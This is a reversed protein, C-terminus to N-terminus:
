PQSEWRLLVQQVVWGPDFRLQPSCSGMVALDLAALGAYRRLDITAQAGAPPQGGSWSGKVQLGFFASTRGQEDLQHTLELVSYPHPPLLYRLDCVM